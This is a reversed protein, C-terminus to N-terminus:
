IRRMRTANNPSFITRALLAREDSNLPMDGAIWKETCYNCLRWLDSADPDDWEAVRDCCNKALEYSMVSPITSDTSDASASISHTM